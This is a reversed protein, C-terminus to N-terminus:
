NADLVKLVERVREEFLYKSSYCRNFGNLAVENRLLPNKLYYNVKEILEEKSSFFDAERGENFLRLHEDTRESLMFGRCAPIEISRSTQLDRNMKRLFNLSIKSCSFAANFEEGYLHKNHFILNKHQDTPKSKGWGYIHVIFGNEALYKLFSLRDLERSGVFVVDHNFEFKSCDEIPYNIKPEFAKDQFLVNAGLSPLENPNCNYSKQTVVLDYHKLGLTYWLTRNHWAYMDDNSWSVIKIGLSKIKKITAPFVMNGKVIIVLDPKENKCYKLIRKNIRSSDLPIKLRYSIKDIINRKYSKPYLDIIDLSSSQKKLSHYLKVRHKELPEHNTVLLVKPNIM